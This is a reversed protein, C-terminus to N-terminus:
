DGAPRPVSRPTGRLLDELLEASEFVLNWRVEDPAPGVTEGDLYDAVRNDSRSGSLGLRRSVLYTILGMELDEPGRASNENTVASGRWMGIVTLALIQALQGVIVTMVRPEGPVPNILLRFYSDDGEMSPHVPLGRDRTGQRIWGITEYDLEEDWELVAGLTWIHGLLTREYDSLVDAFEPFRPADRHPTRHRFHDRELGDVIPWRWPTQPQDGMTAMSFNMSEEWGPTVDGSLYCDVRGRQSGLMQVPRAGPNPRGGRVLWEIETYLVPRLLMDRRQEDSVVDIGWREALQRAVVVAQDVTFRPNEAVFELIWRELVARSLPDTVHRIHYDTALYIRTPKM